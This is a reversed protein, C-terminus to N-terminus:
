SLRQHLSSLWAEHAPTVTVDRRPLVRRAVALFGDRSTREAGTSGWALPPIWRPPRGNGFVSAGAGIVTGTGLMTGIATKAHDGILSGLFQRQTEFRGAPTDLRVTGYTNKLNSTTTLAGLNVWHGLISHGVFGDHAKNCYGIFVSTSVEGHVVARPGIVSHRVAGGLVRAGEGIWCPGEIRAGSRIEAGPLVAVAGQRVDFVVGPEVMDSGLRVRAPDGLVLTGAPLVVGAPAFAMCDDPLFRDLADLLSHTGTLRLGRIELAPGDGALTPPTSGTRAIRAVTEGGATLREVGPPISLRGDAPAFWAAALLVPGGLERPAIAPPSDVDVFGAIASGMILSTPLGLAREWRERVRWAGARLEAVPRVGSFPQWPGDGDEPELLILQTM